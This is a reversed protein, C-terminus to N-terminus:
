NACLMPCANWLFCVCLLGRSSPMAHLRRNAHLGLHNLYMSVEMKFIGDTLVQQREAEEERRPM